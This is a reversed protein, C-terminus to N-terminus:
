AAPVEPQGAARETPPKSPEQLAAGDHALEIQLAEPASGPRDGAQPPSPTPDVGGAPELDGSTVVGAPVPQEEMEDDLLGLMRAQVMQRLMSKPIPDARGYDDIYTDLGDMVNFHPDTFLKKMAANKVGSDVDPAVFRSFDSAPTLSKVEELTPPPVSRAVPPGGAESRETTEAVEAAAVPATALVTAAVPPAPQEAEAVPPALPAAEQRVQAKRRSWRSFFTEDKENGM